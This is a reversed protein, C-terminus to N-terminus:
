IMSLYYGQPVGCHVPTWRSKVMTSNNIVRQTRDTLYSFTWTLATSSFRTQSLKHLLGAHSRTLLKASTSYYSFPWVYTTPLRVFMMVCSWCRPELAICRATDQSISIWLITNMWTNLLKNMYLDRYYNPSSIYILSRDHTQHLDLHVLGRCRNWFHKKGSQQFFLIKLAIM